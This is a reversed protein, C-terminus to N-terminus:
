TEAMHRAPLPAAATWIDATEAIRLHPHGLSEEVLAQLHGLAAAPSLGAAIFGAFIDGVGHPVGQHLPHGHLQMGDDDLSLVGTETDSVPASTGHVVAGGAKDRLLQAAQAAEALTDTPAGTLWGLEFRNPTLVDALSLLQDRLAHGVEVPVYLGGPHDGLIPDLVVRAEPVMRRLRAALRAALEVHAVSPMFGLLLTGHGSLWGNGDIADIMEDLQGPPIPGGAIHPLGLHNSYLVTPLLTTRVGLQQVAPSAASLGVHGFAVSSSMMLIGSPRPSTEM